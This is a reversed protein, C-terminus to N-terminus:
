ICVCLFHGICLKSELFPFSTYWQEEIVGKILRSGWWAWFMLSLPRSKTKGIWRVLARAFGPQFSGQIYQGWSRSRRCFERKKEQGYLAFDTIKKKLSIYQLPSNLWVAENWLVFDERAPRTATFHSAAASLAPPERGHVIGPRWAGTSLLPSVARLPGPVTNGKEM